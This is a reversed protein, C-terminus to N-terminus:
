SNSGPGDQRASLSLYGDADVEFTVEVASAGAARPPHGWWNSALSAARNVSAIDREGQLM